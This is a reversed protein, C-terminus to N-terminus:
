QTLLHSLEFCCAQQGLFMLTSEEVKLNALNAASQEQQHENMSVEVESRQGKYVLM